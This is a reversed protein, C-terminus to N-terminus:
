SWGDCDESKAGQSEKRNGSRFFYNSLYLNPEFVSIISAVISTM